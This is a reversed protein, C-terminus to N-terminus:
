HKAKKNSAVILTFADKVEQKIRYSDRIKQAAKEQVSQPFSAFADKVKDSFKVTLSALAWAVAMQVYYEDNTLEQLMRLAIDIWDDEGFVRMITTALFRRFYTSKNKYPTFHEWVKEKNASFLKACSLADNTAWNDILGVYEDILEFVRNLDRCKDISYAQLIFDEHYMPTFPDEIMDVNSLKRLISSACGWIPYKTKILRSDFKAKKNDREVFNNADFKSM